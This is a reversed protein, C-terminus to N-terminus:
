CYCHRECLESLTKQPDDTVVDSPGEVFIFNSLNDSMWDFAAKAGQEVAMNHCTTTTESIFMKDDPDDLCLDDRVSLYLQNEAPV